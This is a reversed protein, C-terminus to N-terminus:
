DGRVLCERVVINVISEPNSYNRMKITVDAYEEYVRKRENFLVEFGKNKLGVIGRREHNKVRKNINEFSDELYVVFSKEKLFKMASKSYVISGGPSIVSNTIDALDMITKTEIKLFYREGFKDIIQQLKLNTNKEILEDVDIFDYNLKKAVKKGIFSKGVGAMGILTINM